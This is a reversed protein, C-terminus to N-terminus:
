DRALTAPALAALRSHSPHAQRCAGSEKIFFSLKTEHKVRSEHLLTSRLTQLPSDNVFLRLFLCPVHRLCLPGSNGLRLEQSNGVLNLLKLIEIGFFILEAFICFYPFM